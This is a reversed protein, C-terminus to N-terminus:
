HKLLTEKSTATEEPFRGRHETFLSRKMGNKKKQWFSPWGGMSVLNAALWWWHRATCSCPMPCGIRKSQECHTECFVTPLWCCQRRDKRKLTQAHTTLWCCDRITITPPRM